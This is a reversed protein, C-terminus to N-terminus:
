QRILQVHLTLLNVPRVKKHEHYVAVLLFPMTTLTTYAIGTLAALINIVYINYSTLLLAMSIVFSTMGFIYTVFMGFHNVLKEIFCSYVGALCCHLLLGWSAMRVGEDYLSRLAHDEPVDPSGGYVAQGVYDTFYISFTMMATWSTCHAFLLRKLVLPLSAIDRWIKTLRRRVNKFLRLIQRCGMVCCNCCGISVCFFLSGSLRNVDSKNTTFSIVTNSDGDSDVGGQQSEVVSSPQYCVEKASTLSLTLAASFFIFLIFFACREQTHFTDWLVTLRWDVAAILYGLCGGLSLMFSYIAFARPQRETNHCIDFLLAECPTSFTQGAFDLLVVGAILFFLSWHDDNFVAFAVVNNYAVLVLSTLLVIGLLLIFPRRRGYRSTCNDSYHGIAPVLFLGLLPGVGMVYSMHEENLGAKLLMPAVYSFATGICVEVGCIVSNVLVLKALSVNRADTSLSSSMEDRLPLLVEDKTAVADRNSM